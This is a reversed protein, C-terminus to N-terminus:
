VYFRWVHSFAGNPVHAGSACVARVRRSFDCVFARYKASAGNLCTFVQPVFLECEALSIAFSGGYKASAGSLCTLVQPVFLACGM